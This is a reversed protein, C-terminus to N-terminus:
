HQLWQVQSKICLSQELLVEEACREPGAERFVLTTVLSSHRLRCKPIERRPREVAVGFNLVDGTYNMVTVLVGKSSDVEEIAALVQKSALSAFVTGAVSATLLGAGVFRGFAPEHGSGRGSTISVNTQSGRPRAYIIKNETGIAVALNTISLSRLASSILHSPDNVFHKAPTEGIKLFHDCNASSISVGPNHQVNHPLIGLLDVLAIPIRRKLLHALTTTRQPHLVVILYDL